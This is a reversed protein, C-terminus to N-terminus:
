LGWTGQRLLSLLDQIGCSLSLVTLYIFLNKKFALKLFKM